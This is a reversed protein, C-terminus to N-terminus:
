MYMTNYLLLVAFNITEMINQAGKIRKFSIKPVFCLIEWFLVRQNYKFGVVLKYPFCQFVWSWYSSVLKVDLSQDGSPQMGASSASTSASSFSASSSSAGQCLWSKRRRRLMVPRSEERAAQQFFCYKLCIIDRPQSVRKKQPASLGMWCLSPHRHLHFNHLLHEQYVIVWGINHTNGQDPSSKPFSYLQRM